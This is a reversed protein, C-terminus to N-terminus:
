EGRLIRRLYEARTARAQQEIERAFLPMAVARSAQASRLRETRLRLREVFGARLPMKLAIAKM